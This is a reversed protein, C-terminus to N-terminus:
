AKNYSLWCFQDFVAFIAM